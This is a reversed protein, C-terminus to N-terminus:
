IAEAAIKKLREPNDEVYRATMAISAHGMLMSVAKIDKGDEILRTAFTRRGSHSSCGQLGAQKFMRHFLQQLSNPSFQGKQSQFLIGEPNFGTDKKRKNLYETLANRVKKNTLYVHRQKDGKTMKRKLNIEDLLQGDSGLVDNVRLSAMEKARLGLGFSMYLLAINRKTHPRTNAVAVVHKFQNPNLVKAKGERSM